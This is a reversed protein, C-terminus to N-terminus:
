DGRAKEAPNGPEPSGQSKEDTAASPEESSSDEDSDGDLDLSNIINIVRLVAEKEEGELVSAEVSVDGITVKGDVLEELVLKAEGDILVFAVHDPLIDVFVVEASTGALAEEIKEEDTGDPIGV